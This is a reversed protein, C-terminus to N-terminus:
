SESGSESSFACSFGIPLRRRLDREIKEVEEMLEGRTMGEVSGAQVADMTSRSFFYWDSKYTYATLHHSMRSNSCGSPRM